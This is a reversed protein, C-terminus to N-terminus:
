PLGKAKNIDTVVVAAADLVQQSAPSNTAWRAVVVAGNWVTQFIDYDKSVTPVSNTTVKGQIVLDLYSSYAGTTAVQVSALTNYTVRQQSACGILFAVAFVAALSKVNKM